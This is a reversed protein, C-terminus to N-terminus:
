ASRWTEPEYGLLDTLEWYGFGGRDSIDEATQRGHYKDQYKKFATLFESWAITGPPRGPIGKSPRPFSAQVPVRKLPQCTCSECHPLESSVVRLKSGEQILLRLCSACTVVEVNGSVPQRPETSGCFVKRTQPDFYHTGDSM